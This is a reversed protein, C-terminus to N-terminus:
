VKDRATCLSLPMLNVKKVRSSMALTRPPPKLTLSLGAMKLTTTPDLASSRRRMQKTRQRHYRLRLPFRLRRTAAFCSSRSGPKM